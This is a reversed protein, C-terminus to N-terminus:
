RKVPAKTAAALAKQTAQWAAQQAALDDLSYQLQQNQRGNEAAISALGADRTSTLGALQNAISADANVRAQGYGTGYAMGRGAYNSLLRRYVNPTENAVQAAKSAYDTTLSNRRRALEAIANQYGFLLDRRKAAYDANFALPSVTM